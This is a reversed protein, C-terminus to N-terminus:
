PALPAGYVNQDLGGKRLCPDELSPTRYRDATIGDPAWACPLYVEFGRHEAGARRDKGPVLDRSDTWTMYGGGPVASISIYDGFFPARGAARIDWNPSSPASTVRTEAWTEGGDSSRALMVDAVPGSSAGSQDNGPPLDPAYAPDSRSDYFILDLRGDASAIDPFWQHGVPADDVPRAAASWDVGDPSSQVFVKAQGGPLRASWAIHVGNTDATISPYTDFRAYTYGSPCDAPGEGCQRGGFDSSTFPTISAVHYRESEFSAGGDTSRTVWLDRPTEFAAYVVGNPGVALDAIAGCTLSALLPSNTFTEGHDTSRAFLVSTCGYSIADMWAVYVNGSFRGGTTDVAVVPKDEFGITGSRYVLATREYRAGDAGYTAVVIQDRLQALNQGPSVCLFGYYLTGRLDFTQSPDSTESCRDREPFSAAGESTDGPYGPVLSARWTGGGDTSRYYGVWVETGTLTTCSDNSGATIVDPNRPDVAVAPENQFSRSVSCARTTPDERGDFRLYSGAHDDFTVRRDLSRPSSTASPLAAGAVLVAVGLVAM